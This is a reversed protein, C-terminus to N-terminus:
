RGRFVDIPSSADARITVSGPLGPIAIDSLNVRCVVEVRVFGVQDGPADFGSGDVTVQPGSLCDFQGALLARVRSDAQAVAQDPGRALSAERAAEWAAQDVAQHALGIL